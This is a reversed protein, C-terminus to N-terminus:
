ARKAHMTFMEVVASKVKPSPGRLLLAVISISTLCSCKTVPSRASRIIYPRFSPIRASWTPRFGMSGAFRYKSLSTCYTHNSPPELSAAVWGFVTDLLLTSECLEASRCTHVTGPNGSPTAVHARPAVSLSPGSEAPSLAM